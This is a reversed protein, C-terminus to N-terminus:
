SGRVNQSVDLSAIIMPDASCFHPIIRSRREDNNLEESHGLIRLTRELAELDGVIATQKERLM